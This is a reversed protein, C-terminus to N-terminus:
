REKGETLERYRLLITNQSIDLLSCLDRWRINRARGQLIVQDEEETFKRRKSGMCVPEFEDLRALLSGAKIAIPKAAPLTLREEKSGPPV